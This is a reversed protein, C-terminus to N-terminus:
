SFRADYWAVFAPLSDWWGCLFGCAQRDRLYKLQEASPKKGPAKIEVEIRQVNGSDPTGCRVAVWDARGKEGQRIMSRYLLERTIVQGRDLAALLPGIGIVVGAQQREVLWGRARLFGLIQSEVQNEPLAERKKPARAKGKRPAPATGFLSAAEAGSIRFPRL